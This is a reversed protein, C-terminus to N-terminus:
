VYQCVRERCSARGIQGDFSSDKNWVWAADFFVFPQVAFSKSNGPIFSGYRAETSVAVGSDGIVTGPDFGRGVTFNGGSFEEYAVLPDSLDSSCVDSSWDSIRM